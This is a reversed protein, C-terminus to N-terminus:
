VNGIASPLDVPAAETLKLPDSPAGGTEVHGFEGISSLLLM